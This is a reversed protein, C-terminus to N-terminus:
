HEYEGDPEDEGDETDGENDTGIEGGVALGRGSLDRRMLKARSGRVSRKTKPIMM